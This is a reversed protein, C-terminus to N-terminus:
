RRRWPFRRGAARGAPRQARPHAPDGQFQRRCLGCRAARGGDAANGGACIPRRAALPRGRHRRGAGHNGYLVPEAGGATRGGPRSRAAGRGQRPRHHPRRGEEARRAPRIPQAAGARNKRAAGRRDAPRAPHHRLRVEDPRRLPRTRGARIESQSRRGRCRRHGTRHDPQQLALQADLNRVAAESAAVDAQAQELATRFDRDDIRALMQGAKVPQNDGVLVQPSIAPCKRRSSRPTPRSTPTTPRNWTAAPPSIATASTRPLPSASRSPWRWRRVSSRRGPRAFAPKRKCILPM